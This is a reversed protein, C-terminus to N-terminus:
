DQRFPRSLPLAPHPRRKGVRGVKEERQSWDRSPCVLSLSHSFRGKKESPQAWARLGLQLTRLRPSSQTHAVESFVRSALPVEQCPRFHSLSEFGTVRGQLDLPGQASHSDGRFLNFTWPSCTSQESRLLSDPPLHSGCPPCGSLFDHWSLVPPYQFLKEQAQHYRFLRQIM